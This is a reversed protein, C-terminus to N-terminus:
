YSQDLTVGAWEAGAGFTPVKFWLQHLPLGTNRFLVSTGEPASGGNFQSYVGV